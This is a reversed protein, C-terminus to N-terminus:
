LTRTSKTPNRPIIKRHKTATQVQIGNEENRELHQVVKNKPPSYNGDKKRRRINRSTVM